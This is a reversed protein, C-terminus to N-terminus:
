LLTIDGMHRNLKKNDDEFNEDHLGQYPNIHVNEYQADIALVDYHLDAKYHVHGETWCNERLGTV